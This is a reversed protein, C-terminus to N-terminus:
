CRPSTTPSSNTRASRGAAPATRRSSSTPRPGYRLAAVLAEEEVTSGRGVNVVYAHAPLAALRGADLAGATAATSPLITVLVHTQALEDELRDEAVVAFGSREGASRGVGCV